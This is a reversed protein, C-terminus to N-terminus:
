IYANKDNGIILKKISQHKKTRIKITKKKKTRDINRIFSSTYILSCLSHLSSERACKEIIRVILSGSVGLGV